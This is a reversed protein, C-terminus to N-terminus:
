VAASRAGSMAAFSGATSSKACRARWAYRPNEGAASIGCTSRMQASTSPRGSPISSAAAQTRVTGQASIACSSSCPMSRAGLRCRLRGPRCCLRRATISNEHRNSARRVGTGIADAFDGRLDRAAEGLVARFSEVHKLEHALTAEQACPNRALENGVYVVVPQMSLSVSVSATGCARNGAADELVRLDIDTEHGFRVTTLGFTTYRDPTNGGLVTLEDITRSHDRTYTLPMTAIRFRTAPLEACKAEFSAFANSRGQGCGVVLLAVVVANAARM